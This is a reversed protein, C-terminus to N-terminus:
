SVKAFLRNKGLGSSLLLSEPGNVPRYGIKQRKQESRSKAVHQNKGFFQWM